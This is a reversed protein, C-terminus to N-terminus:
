STGTTHARDRIYLMQGVRDREIAEALCERIQSRADHSERCGEEMIERAALVLRDDESGDTGRRALATVYSYDSGKGDTLGAETLRMWIRQFVKTASVYWYAPSTRPKSFYDNVLRQARISIAAYDTEGLGSLFKRTTPATQDVLLAETERWVATSVHESSAMIPALVRALWTIHEGSPGTLLRLTALALDREFRPTSAAFGDQLANVALVAGPMVLRNVASSHDAASLRSVVADRLSLRESFIYGAALLWTHRWHASPVLLELKDAADEGAMLCRAAFFEALSRVEFAVGDMRPVLLVLRQQALHLIQGILDAIEAEGHGESELITRAIAKLEDMPLVSQAAGAREAQAHIALGCRQHLQDFQARYIELIDGIGEPKNCERAYITDYYIKFLAYRSAPAQRRQELILSLITVQLPTTMLRATDTNQSAKDLRELTQQKRDPDEAFRRSLLRSAYAMAHKRHLPELHLEEYDIDADREFGIPRSTCVTFVDAGLAAMETLFDSIRASVESRNRASAVEDMGDLVVLLPWAAALRKAESVDIPDSARHSIIQVIYQLLTLDTSASVADAYSSLVVRVPLRHLTPTPLNAADFAERIDRARAAVQETVKGIAVQQILAVRYIQCLLRSLTSKGSGPGGLVVVRDRVAPVLSPTMIQDSREVLRRLAPRDDKERPDFVAPLDVAVEALSLPMNSKDGSEGLEVSTDAKLARAIHGIWADAIRGDDAAIQQYVRAIVDGPLVLDAYSRRVEGNTELLRDLYEAHWIAYDKFQPIGIKRITGDDLEETLDRYRNFLQELRDLGGNSSVATLPVNTVIVLYEPQKKYRKKRPNIWSKLETALTEFFWTQDAATTTLREKYKAQIVGYGGWEGKGEMNVKGRFTAERGGDPGSGFVDVGHGLHALALAQVLHEFRTHGLRTLDYM